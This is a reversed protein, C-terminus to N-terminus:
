CPSLLFLFSDILLSYAIVSVFASQLSGVTSYSLCLIPYTIHFISHYFCIFCLPFFFFTNFSILVIESVEPVINFAGVNSDYSDWFFFIFLFVMFFYKLLYCSFFERFHHPFYGGFNLFVLSDWVPYVLSLVGWSM